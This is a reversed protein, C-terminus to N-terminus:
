LHNNTKIAILRLSYLTATQLIFLSCRYHLQVFVFFFFLPMFMPYYVWHSVKIQRIFYIDFVQM